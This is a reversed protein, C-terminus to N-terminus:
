QAGGTSGLRESLSADVDAIVEDRIDLFGPVREVLWNMAEDTSESNVAVRQFEEAQEETLEDGLRDTLQLVVLESIAAKIQTRQPEQLDEVQHLFSPKTSKQKKDKM